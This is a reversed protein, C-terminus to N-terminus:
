KIAGSHVGVSHGHAVRRRRYRRHYLRGRAAEGTGQIPHSDRRKGGGGVLGIITAMRVNIDWRYITFSIYPLAIPPVVAFRVIQVATAGTAQIAKIPGEDLM